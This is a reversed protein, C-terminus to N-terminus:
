KHITKLTFEMAEVKPVMIMDEIRSHDNLDNELAFLEKLISFCPSDDESEPLYKIIINKLDYLKEEVNDHEKEYDAISYTDMKNRLKDSIEGSYIANELELVYPYVHDEEHLIHQQLENKYELFFNRLLLFTSDDLQSEDKLKNILGELEPLKKDTYYKHSKNLYGVLMSAPFNQMHKKPFYQHDHYANIITLFFEPNLEKEDCIQEISKEGFGLHINFRNIVPVLNYDHHIVDALKMEKQILMIFFTTIRTWFYHNIKRRMSRSRKGLNPTM